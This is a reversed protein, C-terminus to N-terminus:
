ATEWFRWSNRQCVEVDNVRPFRSKDAKDYELVRELVPTSLSCYYLAKIHDLSPYQGSYGVQYSEPLNAHKTLEKNWTRDRFLYEITRSSSYSRKTEFREWDLSFKSIFIHSIVIDEQRDRKTNQEMEICTEERCRRYSPSLFRTVVDVKLYIELHLDWRKSSPLAAARCCSFTSANTM